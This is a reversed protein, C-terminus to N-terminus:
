ESVRKWSRRDYKDTKQYLGPEFSKTILIIQLATETESHLQLMKLEADFSEDDDDPDPLEYGIIEAVDGAVFSNGYPRKPDIEPAGTECDQWGVYFNTILKIHDNTLRFTEM